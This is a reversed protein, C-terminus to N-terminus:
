PCTSDAAMTIPRNVYIHLLLLLLLLLRRRTDISDVTATTRLNVILLCDKAMNGSQTLLDWSVLNETDM